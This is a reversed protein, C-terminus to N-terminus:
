RVMVFDNHNLLVWILQTRAFEAASEEQGAEPLSRWAEMARLSAALEADSPYIALLILFAARVFETDSPMSELRSHDSLKARGSGCQGFINEAIPRVVDLVLSSNTM